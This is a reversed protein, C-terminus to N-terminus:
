RSHGGETFCSEMWALSRQLSEKDNMKLILNAEPGVATAVDNIQTCTLVGRDPEGHSDVKGDNSHVYVSSTYSATAGLWQSLPEHGYVLFHGLDFTLAVEDGRIQQM